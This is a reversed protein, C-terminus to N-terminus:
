ASDGQIDDAEAFSRAVEDYHERCLGAFPGGKPSIRFVADGTTRPGKDCGEHSCSYRDKKQESVM